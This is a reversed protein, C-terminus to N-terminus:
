KNLGSHHWQRQRKKIKLYIMGGRYLCVSNLLSITRWQKRSFPNKRFTTVSTIFPTYGNMKLSWLPKLVSNRGVKLVVSGYIWYINNKIEPQVPRLLDGTKKYKLGDDEFNIFTVVKEKHHPVGTTFVAICPPQELAM